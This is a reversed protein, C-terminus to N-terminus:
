CRAVAGRGKLAFSLFASHPVSEKERRVRSMASSDLGRARACSLSPVSATSFFIALECPAIARLREGFSRRPMNAKEFTTRDNIM